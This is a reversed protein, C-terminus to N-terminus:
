PLAPSPICDSCAVEILHGQENRRVLIKKQGAGIRRTRFLRIVHECTLTPFGYRAVQEEIQGGSILEFEHDM